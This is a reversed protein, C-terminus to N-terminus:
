CAAGASHQSVSAHLFLFQRNQYCGGTVGTVALCWFMVSTGSLLPGPLVRLLVLLLPAGRM